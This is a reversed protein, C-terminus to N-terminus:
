VRGANWGIVQYASQRWKILQEPKPAQQAQATTAAATALLAIALGTLTPKKM